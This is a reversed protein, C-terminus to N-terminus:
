NLSFFETGLDSGLYLIAFNSKFANYPLNPNFCINCIYLKILLNSTSDNLISLFILSTISKLPVLLDTTIVSSFM